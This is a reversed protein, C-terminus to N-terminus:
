VDAELERLKAELRPWDAAIKEGGLSGYVGRLKTPRKDSPACRLYHKVVRAVKDGQKEEVRTVGCHLVLDFQGAFVDRFGGSLAPVIGPKAKADEVRDPNAISTEKVDKEAVHCTAVINVGLGAFARAIRVLQEQQQRQYGWFSSGTPSMAPPASTLGHHAHTKNMALTAFGNFTDMVLVKFRPPESAEQKLTMYAGRLWRLAEDYGTAKLSDATPFYEPDDFGKIVYGEKGDFPRYSAYENMGEALAILGSGESQLIQRAMTSKGSGPPGLLLITRGPKM